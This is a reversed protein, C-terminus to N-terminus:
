VMAGGNILEDLANLICLINFMDDSLDICFGVHNCEYMFDIFTNNLQNILDDMAINKNKIKKLKKYDVNGNDDMYNIWEMYLVGMFKNIIEMCDNKLLEPFCYNIFICLEIHNILTDPKDFEYFCDICDYINLNDDIFCEWMKYKHSKEPQIYIVNVIDDFVIFLYDNGTDYANYMKVNFYYTLNLYDSIIFNKNDMLKNYMETLYENIGSKNFIYIDMSEDCGYIGNSNITEFM